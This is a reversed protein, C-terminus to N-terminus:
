ELEHGAYKLGSGTLVAVVRPGGVVRRAAEVVASSPEVIFGKSYLSSLGDRVAEDGVIVVGSAAEVMDRIRPPERVVLADLLRGEGGGMRALVPVRGDLSAARPSQVAILRADVGLRRFGRHLGVLLSGSSVPVIVSAGRAAGALEGALSEMGALFIPSYLHSVYFCKEADVIAGRTASERDPHLILEAGLRRIIALKGRGAGEPAHIRARLGLRAAYAAVSIGTNGSSDEVVCEYDLKSALWVSLSSGRDKFSGTPNLYELKYATGDVEVLPTGGEGLIPGRPKPLQGEVELPGGCRPCRYTYEEPPHEYGCSRCVLKWTL